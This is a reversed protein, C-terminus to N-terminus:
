QAILTFTQFHPQTHTAATAFAPSQCHALIGPFLYLLAILVSLLPRLRQM